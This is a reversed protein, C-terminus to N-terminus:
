SQIVHKVDFFEVTYELTVQIPAQVPNGNSNTTMVYLIGAEAPNNLVDASYRDDAMYQATTRGTLSPMSVWGKLVPAGGGPNCTVYKCRPNERIYGATGWTIGPDNSAIAHIARYDSGNTVPSEIRWGCKIVRYRNYLLALNDFGYPQHGAGTRDPDYISNINYLYQGTALNTLNTECYKMKCIYRQPIPQLSHNVTVTTNKRRPARRPRRSVKPRRAFKRRPM